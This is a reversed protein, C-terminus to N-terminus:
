AIGTKMWGMPLANTVSARKLGSSAMELPARLRAGGAGVIVVNYYSHDVIDYARTM